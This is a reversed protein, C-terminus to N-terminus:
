GWKTAVLIAGLVAVGIWEFGRWVRRFLRERLDAQLLGAMIYIVSVLYVSGKFVGVPWFSLVTALEGLILAPILVFAKKNKSRGDDAFEITVAWFQYLFIMIGVVMAVLGNGWFLFKFSLMTDFLFFCTVLMIILSVTYASRYLPVTRYGIAVLFVNIVLFLVYIVVGFLVSVVVRQLVGLPLLAVFLGFGVFFSVPLMASMLRNFITQEFIIGLGFWICFTVLVIGTLLGYYRSEYPLGLFLYFGVAGVVSSIFFKIRKDMTILGPFYMLWM